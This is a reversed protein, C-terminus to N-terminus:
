LPVAKPQARSVDEARSLLAAFRGIRCLIPNKLLYVFVATLDQNAWDRASAPTSFLRYVFETIWRQRNAGHNPGGSFAPLDLFSCTLQYLSEVIENPASEKLQQQQLVIERAIPNHKAPSIFNKLDTIAIAGRSYEQEYRSWETGCLVRIIENLLASVAAGKREAAFSSGVARATAWLELARIHQDLAAESSPAPPISVVASLWKLSHIAPPIIIATRYRDTSAAFLGGGEAVRFGTIPDVSIPSSEAPSRFSHHALSAEMQDDLLALKLFYGNNEQKVIWRVPSSERSARLVFRGLEECHFILECETSADYTNQIQRDSTMTAWLDSWDSQVCPLVVSGLTRALIPKPSSSSYFKIEAEVKRDSPGLLEVTAQKEWVEELSPTAPSVRVSFPTASPISGTWAKPERVTFQLRGFIHNSHGTRVVVVHLNYVGSNLEGLDILLPWTTVGGLELKAPSPGLLNLLVGQVEFDAAIKIIPQDTSLWEATGLDDWKAAPLGVPAVRVENATTLCLDRLEDAYIKSLVDPVNLRTASIGDCSVTATECHLTPAGLDSANRSILIYACGPQVIGTKVHAATAGDSSIKFLWRPGPRLLCEMTLLYKLDSDLGEFNILLEESSPWRTLVVVQRDYLLAGRPLPTGKTGAITCRQGAVVTRLGDFRQILSTLDPLEVQVIWTEPGMRRLFLKPELGLELIERQLPTLIVGTASFLEAPDEDTSRSLGRIRIQNARRRADGLWDRSRQNKDLDGAIRDLTSSLILANEKDEESLLLATAIQGALLHNEAFKRFRTGSNLAAGEIRQGLLEPNHLLQPTFSGRLEYLVYALERQLDKPLIAHTIPWCIITFQEAWPGQPQTANFKRHFEEFASRIHNRSNTSDQWNPTLGCFTTWYEEGSYQYGVEASYVAWALFHRHAPGTFKLWEHIQECLEAVEVENLGHELAYLITDPGPQNLRRQRLQAFHSELKQQWDNLTMAGRLM